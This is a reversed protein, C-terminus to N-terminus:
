KERHAKGTPPGHNLSQQWVISAQDDLCVLQEAATALLINQGVTFPGWTVLAQLNTSPKSALDPLEFVSLSGDNAGAVAIDGTIAFHTNLPATSLDVAEVATLHPQPKSERALLYVREKGDSLM